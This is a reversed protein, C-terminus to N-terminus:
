ASNIGGAMGKHGGSPSGGAMGKHDHSDGQLPVLEALM